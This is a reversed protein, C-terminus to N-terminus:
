FTVVKNKILEEREGEWDRSFNQRILQAPVGGILIENGLSTYDKVCLSNSAIVCYNPTKTGSMISVRNSVANYDGINIPEVMPYQEKTITNIMPHSNSDIIQSEYGIGTWNGIVIKHTCILKVDSGLASMNGFECYAGPGVYLFCDKAMHTYGRFVLTGQICIEAIGKSVTMKEFKQGFGIMATKPQPGLTITGSINAFKVRGYFFVPLKRAIRFPFKKFNFYLTKYWNVSRIIKFRKKQLRYFQRLGM